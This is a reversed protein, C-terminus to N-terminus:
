KIQNPVSLGHNQIKTKLLNHNDICQNKISLILFSLQTISNIIKIFVEEQYGLSFPHSTLDTYETTTVFSFITREAIYYHRVAVAEQSITGLM